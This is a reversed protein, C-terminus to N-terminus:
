LDVVLRNVLLWIDFDVFRNRLSIDEFAKRYSSSIMQTNMQIAKELADMVEPFSLLEETSLAISAASAGQNARKAIKALLREDDHHQCYKSVMHFITMEKSENITEPEQDGPVTDYIDIPLGCNDGFSSGL